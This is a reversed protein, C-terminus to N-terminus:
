ELAEEVEQMADDIEMQVEYSVKEQAYLAITSIFIVVMSILLIKKM